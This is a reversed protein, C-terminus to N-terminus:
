YAVTQQVNEVLLRFLYNAAFVLYACMHIDRFSMRAQKLSPDHSCALLRLAFHRQRDLFCSFRCVHEVSLVCM